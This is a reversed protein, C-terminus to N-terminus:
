PKGECDPCCQCGPLFPIAAGLARLAQESFGTVGWDFAERLADAAAEVARGPINM